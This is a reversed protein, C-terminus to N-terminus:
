GGGTLTAVDFMPMFLSIAVFGVVAGMAILIVPEIIRSLSGIIQNNESELAEAVFLLSAGLRGSEEGTMIAAALTSMVLPSEQLAEGVRRGETVAQEVHDILQHFATSRTAGRALKLAEMLGVNNAILVGWVRFLKALIVRRILSGAIPINTFTATWWKRGAESRFFVVISVVTGVLLGLLPLWHATVFDAMNMMFQTSAPLEADLTSFLDRFRPLVFGFMGAMVGCCMFILLIPYIMAGVIKQRVEQRHHVYTAIQDFAEAMRGTSEGSATLSRYVGDFVGPYEGMAASLPVGDEVRGRLVRLLNRMADSRAQAELANLATVIRAGSSLLMSIQQTVYVLEKWRVSQRRRPLLSGRETRQAPAEGAGETLRTVLLGKARLMRAADDQTAAQIVDTVSRGSADIAQYAFTM